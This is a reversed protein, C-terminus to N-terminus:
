SSLAACPRRKTFVRMHAIWALAYAVLLIMHLHLAECAQTRLSLPANPIRGPGERSCRGSLMGALRLANMRAWFVEFKQRLPM